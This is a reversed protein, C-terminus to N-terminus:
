SGPNAAATQNSAPATVTVPNGTRLGAPEVVVTQGENLGSVIEVWNNGRRGTVVTKEQAKGDVVLVVKELGAFTILTDPPLSLSPEGADVVIEARAFLGPRLSGQGPVDAEVLLVRSTERLSPAVRALKGTYVNTDGEVTIRVDQGVRVFPSGREPVELRLRLPNTKVVRVIPTGVAAYSGVSAIREAVAGDFPAKVRSREVNLLAIANAAEAAKVEALAADSEAVAQDLDSGSAIKETQLAEVRKLNQAANTANARAKALNAASQRALAEYSTTDILALEQGASVQDGLDVRFKEIQGAVQAAVTTEEYASLNGVVQLTREMPRAEVRAVRVARAPAGESRPSGARDAKGCSALLAACLASLIGARHRIFNM